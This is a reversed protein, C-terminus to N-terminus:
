LNLYKFRNENHEEFTKSFITKQTEPDSLYYLYPSIKPSIAAKITSEGPNGIPTEPLGLRKYTNFSNKIEFDEKGLRRDSCGTFDGGCKAYVITADVQIALSNKIRKNIIGAVIRRDEFDIVEKELISAAILKDFWTKDKELLPWVRKEFNDM